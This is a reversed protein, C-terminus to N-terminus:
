SPTPGAEPQQDAHGNTELLAKEIVHLFETTDVFYNPYATKLASISDVSVLVAQLDPEEKEIKAYQTNALEQQEQTFLHLTTKFTKTNLVLLYIATAEPIEENETTYRTIEAWRSLLNHVNLSTFLERMERNIEAVTNPTDPVLPQDESVAISSAVLAFFRKWQEPGINSKLAQGSFTSYTEVATAWYHQLRTRLQIEIRQGNYCSHEPSDSRFRYVLHVGRYGSTKPSSIYDTTRYHQPGRNPSKKSAELFLREVQRVQEVSEMIARCGGIDQMQSLNPHKGAEKSLKLKLRISALRKLRQAVIATPYVRKARRKLTMKMAQLPYSHIARWNNVINIAHDFDIWHDVGSLEYWKPEEQALIEGAWDVRGKQFQPKAWPMASFVEVDLISPGEAAM